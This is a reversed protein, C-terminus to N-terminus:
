LGDIQMHIYTYPKRDTYIRLLEPQCIKKHTLNARTQLEPLYWCQVASVICTRIACSNVRQVLFHKPIHFLSQHRRANEVFQDAIADTEQANLTSIVIFCRWAITLVSVLLSINHVFHLVHFTKCEDFRGQFESLERVSHPM